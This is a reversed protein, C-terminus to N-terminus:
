SNNHCLTLGEPTLPIIWPDARASYLCIGLSETVSLLLCAAKSPILEVDVGLISQWM